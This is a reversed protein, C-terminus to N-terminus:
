SGFKNVKYDWSYPRPSLIHGESGLQPTVFMTIWYENNLQYDLIAKNTTVLDTKNSSLHKLNLDNSNNTAIYGMFKYYEPVIDTIELQTQGKELVVVYKTFLMESIEASTDKITSGSILNLTQQPTQLESVYYGKTPIVLESNPTIVSQRINLSVVKNKTPMRNTVIIQQHAYEDVSSAFKFTAEEGVNKKGNINIETEYEQSEKLIEKVSYEQNAIWPHVTQVTENPFLTFSDNVTYPDNGYKFDFQETKESVEAGNDDFLKKQLNVIIPKVRTVEFNDVHMKNDNDEYYLSTKGSTAALGNGDIMNLVDNTASVRYSMEAYYIEENPKQSIPTKLKGITWNITSKGSIESLKPSGQTSALSGNTVEFGQGIQDVVFSANVAEVINSAIGGLIEELNDATASFNKDASSAMEKLTQNGVVDEDKQSNMDVSITYFDKILKAGSSTKKNKAINAEAISSNAHNVSLMVTSGPKIAEFDPPKAGERYIVAGGGTGYVKNYNFYGEPIGKVTEYTDPYKSQYFQMGAQQNYPALPPYSYGPAGDSIFVVDRQVGTAKKELIDRAAKIAGQIFTGGKPQLGKIKSILLSKDKFSVFEKASVQHTTISTDFTVLAIRNLGDEDLIINAFREAAAKAKTMRGNQLMSGSTDIVLVIDTPVAPKVRGEVRLKIDWQNVMGAVPTATKSLKVGDDDDVKTEPAAQIQTRKQYVSSHFLFISCAVCSIILFWPLFILKLKRKKNM